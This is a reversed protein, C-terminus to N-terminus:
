YSIDWNAVGNINVNWGFKYDFAISSDEEDLYSGAVDITESVMCPADLQNDNVWEMISTYHVGRQTVDTEAGVSSTVFNWAEECNKAGNVTMTAIGEESFKWSNSMMSLESTM